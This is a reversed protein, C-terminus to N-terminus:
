EEKKSGQAAIQALEEMKEVLVVVRYKWGNELHIDDSIVTNGSGSYSDERKIDVSLNHSRSTDQRNSALVDYERAIVYGGKAVIGLVNVPLVIKSAQELEKFYADVESKAEKKKQEVAADMREGIEERKESLMDRLKELVGIM